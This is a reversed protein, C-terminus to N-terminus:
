LFPWGYERDPRGLNIVPLNSLVFPVLAVAPTGPAVARVRHFGFARGGICPKGPKRKLIVAAKAKKRESM